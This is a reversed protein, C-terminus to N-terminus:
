SFVELSANYFVFCFLFENEQTSSVTDSNRNKTLFSIRNLEPLFLRRSRESTETLALPRQAPHTHTHKHTNIELLHLALHALLINVQQRQHAEVLIKIPSHLWFASEM